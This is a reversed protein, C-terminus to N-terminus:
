SLTYYRGSTEGIARINGIEIMKELDRLATRESVNTLVRYQANTIRGHQRIYSIALKFREERSKQSKNSAMSGIQESTDPEELRTTLESKAASVQLQPFAESKLTQESEPGYFTVIFEGIQEFNPEPLEWQTMQAKMFRIGSGIHEIYGEPLDRLLAVLAHNRLKSPALGARLQELPIGPLLAGPSRIEIRDPYYFVRIFEGSLSYDRHVIANVIAERLVEPPYAPKDIRHLESVQAEVPIYRRVFEYADEILQKITGRLIKRDHWRTLGLNDKHYVCIVESQMIYSQPDRGFMLMGANTPLIVMDDKSLRTRAAALALPNGFPIGRGLPIEVACRLSLLVREIDSFRGARHSQQSRTERLYEEILKYDLDELTAGSAPLLEWKLRNSQYLFAEVEDQTMPVTHTGRRLWYTGSARYLIGSNPPVTAVLLKLNDVIVIEPEAPDFTLPPQCMRAAHLMTDIAHKTNKIGVLRRTEDEVGFILYGGGGNALGCLREAVETPRPAAIKLEVGVTEDGEILQQLFEQDM